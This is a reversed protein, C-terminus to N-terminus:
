RSSCGALVVAETRDSVRDSSFSRAAFQGLDLPKSPLLSSKRSKTAESKAFGIEILNQRFCGTNARFTQLNREAFHATISWVFVIQKNLCADAPVLTDDPPDDGPGVLARWLAAGEYASLRHDAAIQPIIETEHQRHEIGLMADDRGHVHHDPIFDLGIADEFDVAWHLMVVVLM